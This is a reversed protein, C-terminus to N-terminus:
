EGKNKNELRAQCYLLLLLREFHKTLADWKRNVLKENFSTNYKLEYTYYDLQYKEHSIERDLFERKSLLIKIITEEEKTYGLTEAVNRKKQKSMM